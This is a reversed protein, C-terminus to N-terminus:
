WFATCVVMGTLLQVFVAYASEMGRGTPLRFVTEFAVEKRCPNTVQFLVEREEWVSFYRDNGEAGTSYVCPTCKRVCKIFACVFRDGFGSSYIAGGSKHENHCWCKGGKRCFLFFLISRRMRVTIKGQRGWDACMSWSHLRRGTWNKWERYMIVSAAYSTKFWAPLYQCREAVGEFGWDRPGGPFDPSESLEADAWTWKRGSRRQLVFCLCWILLVASSRCLNWQRRYVKQFYIRIFERWTILATDWHRFWGSSFSYQCPIIQYQGCRPHWLACYLFLLPLTVILETVNQVTESNVFVAMIFLAVWRRLQCCLYATLVSIVTWLRKENFHLPCYVDPCTHDCSLSLPDDSGRGVSVDRGTHCAACFYKWCSIGTKKQGTFIVFAGSLVMGFIGVAAGNNCLSSEHYFYRSETLRM